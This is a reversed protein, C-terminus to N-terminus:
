LIKKFRFWDSRTDSRSHPITFEEYSINWSRSWKQLDTFDPFLQDIIRKDIDVCVRNDDEDIMSTEDRTDLASIIRLRMLKAETPTIM